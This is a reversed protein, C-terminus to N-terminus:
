AAPFFKDTEPLKGDYEASTLQGSADLTTYGLSV